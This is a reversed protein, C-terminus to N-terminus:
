YYCQQLLFVVYTSVQCNHTASVIYSGHSHISVTMDYLYKFFSRHEPILFSCHPVSLFHTALNLM